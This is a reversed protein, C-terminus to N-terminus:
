GQGSRHAPRVLTPMPRFNPPPTAKCGPIVLVPVVVTMLGLAITVVGILVKLKLPLETGQPGKGQACLTKPHPVGILVMLMLPLETGQPGKGQACLTESKAAQLYRSLLM